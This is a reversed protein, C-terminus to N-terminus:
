MGNTKGWVRHIKPIEIYPTGDEEKYRKMRLSDNGTFETICGCKKCWRFETYFYPKADMWVPKWAHRKGDVCITPSVKAM